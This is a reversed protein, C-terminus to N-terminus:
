EDRDADDSNVKNKIVSGFLHGGHDGGSWTGAYQNRYILVRATYTGLGPLEKDTLTIIPTDGAWKVELPLPATVDKGGYQIRAMFLWYDGSMKSVKTITYKESRLKGENEEGTITFYGVLTVGSLMEQFAKEHPKLASTHPPKDPTTQKESESGGEEAMSLSAFSLLQAIGIVAVFQTAKM